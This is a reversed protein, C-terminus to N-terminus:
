KVYKNHVWMSSIAGMAGGTGLAIMLPIMETISDVKVANFAVISLVFVDAFSMAYSTPIVLRYHLFAVNRQQFAKFFVFIGHALGAAFVEIM